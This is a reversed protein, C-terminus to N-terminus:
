EIGDSIEPEECEKECHIFIRDNKKELIEPLVVNRAGKEAKNKGQADVKKREKLFIAIYPKIRMYGYQKLLLSHTSRACERNYEFSQSYVPTFRM